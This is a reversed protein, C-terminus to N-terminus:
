VEHDCVVELTIFESVNRKNLKYSDPKKVGKGLLFVDGKSYLRYRATSWRSKGVARSSQVARLLM